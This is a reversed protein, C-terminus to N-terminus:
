QRVKFKSDQFCRINKAEGDSFLGTYCRSNDLKLELLTDGVGRYYYRISFPYDLYQCVNNSIECGSESLLIYIEEKTAQRNNVQYLEVMKKQMIDLVAKMEPSHNRSFDTFHIIIAIIVLFLILFAYKITKIFYHIIKNINDRNIDM